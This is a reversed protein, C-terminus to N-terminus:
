DLKIGAKALAKKIADIEAGLERLLSQQAEIKAAQAEIITQQEQIAKIALIGFGAYNVFYPTEGKEGTSPPTVLQPFLKELEQALFGIKEEKRLDGKMTYTKAQLQMLSPLVAHLPNINEKLRSDSVGHYGGDNYDFYGRNGYGNFNNWLELRNEDTDHWFEWFDSPADSNQIKLGFSGHNIHLRHNGPSTTGIGVNGGNTMFMTSTSANNRINFGATGYNMYMVNDSWRPIMFNEYSGGSNKAYMGASNDLGVPTGGAITLKYGPNNDGIGVNGAETLSMLTTSNHRFDLNGDGVTNIYGNSGGHGMETYETEAVDVAGRVLGIVSLKQQPTLTGIGVNGGAKLFLRGDAVGTESYNLGSGDYMNLHWKTVGSSNKMSFLDMAAGVGQVTLPRDPVSAGIGVYNTSYFITNDANISWLGVPKWGGNYYNFRGKDTNFIMLGTAPSAVGNQEGDTLRPILLGKTNSKVELIASADPSTTGVGMNNNSQALLSGAACSLLLLCGTFLRATHNFHIKM